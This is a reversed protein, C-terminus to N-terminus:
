EAQVGRASRGSGEVKECRDWPRVPDEGADGALEYRQGCTAHTQDSLTAGNGKGGIQRTGSRM